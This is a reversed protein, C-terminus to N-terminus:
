YLLASCWVRLYNEKSGQYWGRPSSVSECYSSKIGHFYEPINDPFIFETIKKSYDFIEYKIWKGEFSPISLFSSTLRHLKERQEHCDRGIENWGGKGKEKM